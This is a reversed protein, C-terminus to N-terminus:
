NLGGNNSGNNHQHLKLTGDETRESELKYSDIDSEQLITEEVLNENISSIDIGHNSALDLNISDLDDNENTFTQNLINTLDNESINQNGDQNVDVHIMLNDINSLNNNDLNNDHNPQETNDQHINDVVNVEDEFPLDLSGNEVLEFPLDNVNNHSGNDLSPHDVNHNPATDNNVINEQNHSNSSDLNNDFGASYTNSGNSDGSNHNNNQHSNNNNNEVPISSDYSDGHKYGDSVSNGNEDHKINGGSKIDDLDANFIYMQNGDEDTIILYSGGTAYQKGDIMIYADKFHQVNYSSASGNLIIADDGKLTDVITNNKVESVILTDNDNTMSYQMVSSHSSNRSSVSDSDMAMQEQQYQDESISLTIKKSNKFIEFGQAIHTNGSGDSIRNGNLTVNNNLDITDQKGGGGSIEWGNTITTTNYSIQSTYNGLEYQNFGFTKVNSSTSSIDFGNTGTVSFSYTSAQTGKDSLDTLELTSHYGSAMTPANIGKSMSSTNTNLMNTLKVRFDYDLSFGTDFSFAPSNAGYTATISIDNTTRAAFQVSNGDIIAYDVHKTKFDSSFILSDINKFTYFEGKSIETVNIRKDTNAPLGSMDITFFNSIHLNGQSREIYNGNVILQVYSPTGANMINFTNDGGGGDVTIDEGNSSEYTVIDNGNGFYFKNVGAVTFNAANIQIHYPSTTTTLDLKVESVSDSVGDTGKLSLSGGNGLYIGNGNGSLYSLRANDLIIINVGTASANIRPFNTFQSHQDVGFNSNATQYVQIVDNTFYLNIGSADISLVDPNAAGSGGSDIDLGSIFSIFHITDAQNGLVLTKFSDLNISTTGGNLIFGNADINVDASSTSVDVSNIRASNGKISKITSTRYDAFSLNIDMDASFNLTDFGVMNVSLAYSNIISTLFVTSTTGSTINVNGVVNAGLSTGSTTFTNGTGTGMNISVGTYDRAMSALALTFTNNNANSGLINRFDKFTAKEGTALTAIDGNNNALDIAYSITSNIARLDLTDNSNFGAVGDVILGDKWSSKFVFTDDYESGKFEKFGGKITDVENNSKTVTANDGDIEVNIAGLMGGNTGEYSISAGSYQTNIQYSINANFTNVESMLYTTIKDSGAIGRFNVYNLGFNGTSDIASEAFVDVTIGSANAIKSLDLISVNASNGGDFTVGGTSGTPPLQEISLSSNTGGLIVLDMGTIKYNLAVGGNASTGSNSIILEGNTNYTFTTGSIKTDMNSFDVSDYGQGMNITIQNTSLSLSGTYVFDDDFDTLNFIEFNLIQDDANSVKKNVNMIVNGSLDEVISLTLGDTFTNTTYDATDDGGNGNIVTGYNEQFSIKDAQNTLSITNYNKVNIAGFNTMGSLDLNGQDDVSATIGIQVHALSLEDNSGGGMDIVVPTNPNTSYGQINDIEFIDDDDSLTIEEINYLVDTFQNTASRGKVEIIVNGSSDKTVGASLGSIANSYEISDIAQSGYGGRFIHSNSLGAANIHLEYNVNTTPSSGVESFNSVELFPNGGQTTSFSFGGIDTVGDIFFTTLGNSGPNGNGALLFSGSIGGTASVFRMTRNEYAANHYYTVDNKGQGLTIQQFGDYNVTTPSGLNGGSYEVVAQFNNNQGYTVKMNYTILSANLANDGGGVDISAAGAAGSIIKDAIIVTDDGAGTKVGEFNTFFDIFNSTGDFKQVTGNGSFDVTLSATSPLSSYDLIDVGAGGDLTLESDVSGHFIDNGKTLEFGKISSSDINYGSFGSGGGIVSINGSSDIEFETTGGSNAVNAFSVKDSGGGGRLTIDPLGATRNALVFVDNGRTGILETIYGNFYDTNNNQGKLVSMLGNSNATFDVRIASSPANASYDLISGGGANAADGMYTRNTTESGRFTATGTGTYAITEINSIFDILTGAGGSRDVTGRVADYIIDESGTYEIKDNGLDGNYRNGSALSSDVSIIDNNQTFKFSTFNVFNVNVTTTNSGNILDFSTQGPVFTVNIHTGSAADFDFNVSNTGGGGDITMQQTMAQMKNIVVTDAFQTGVITDINNFKDIFNVGKQIELDMLYISINSVAQSYNMTDNGSSNGTFIYNNRAQGYFMTETAAAVINFFNRFTMDINGSVSVGQAWVINAYPTNASQGKAVKQTNADFIVTQMASFDLTNKSASNGLYSAYAMPNSSGEFGTDFVITNDSNGFNVTDVGNIGQINLDNTGDSVVTTDINFSVGKAIDILVNDGQQGGLNINKSSFNVSLDTIWVTDAKNTGKITTFSDDFGDYIIDNNNKIVRGGDNTHVINGSSDKYDGIQIKVGFTTVQSYDLTNNTGTGTFNMSKGSSGQVLNGNNALVMTFGNNSFPTFFTIDVNMGGTIHDIGDKDQSLLIDVSSTLASLDLIAEANIGSSGTITVNGFSSGDKFTVTSKGSSLRINEFNLFSPLTGTTNIIQALFSGDTEFDVTIEDNIGTFSLTDSGAGADVELIGSREWGTNVGVVDDKSSLVLKQINTLTDEVRVANGTSDNYYRGVTAGTASLAVQLVNGQSNNPQINSLNTDNEYSVTNVGAGGDISWRTRAISAEYSSIIEVVDDADGLIFGEIHFLELNINGSSVPVTITVNGEATIQGTTNDYINYSGAASSDLILNLATLFSSLNVVDTDNSPNIMNGSGDGFVDNGYLRYVPLPNAINYDVLFVDNWTSGKVTEINILTDSQAASGSGKNVINKAVDFTISSTSNHYSAINSTGGGELTYSVSSDVYFYNNATGGKIYEVNLITDLNNSGKEVNGRTRQFLNFILDEDVLSYDATDVGADGDFYTNMGSIAHFIDDGATGYVGETNIFTSSGINAGSKDLFEVLMDAGNFSIDIHDVENTPLASFSVTDEGAGLDFTLGQISAVTTGLSFVVNDGFDSGFFTTFNSFYDTISSAARTVTTNGSSFVFTVGFGSGDGASDKLIGAYSLTNNGGRADLSFGSRNGQNNSDVYGADDMLFVDDGDTGIISYINIADQGTTTTIMMDFTDVGGGSKTIKGVGTNDFLVTIGNALDAYSLTDRGLGGNFGSYSGAEDTIIIIDNKSSLTLNGNIDFSGELEDKFANSTSLEAATFFSATKYILYDTSGDLVISVAASAKEYSMTDSASLGSYVYNNSFSGFFTDDGASAKIEEFNRIADSGIGGTSDNKNVVGTNADFIIFNGTGLNEYSLIDYGGMGDLTISTTTGSFGSIIGGYFTEDNVSGRVIEFGDFTVLTTNASNEITSTTGIRIVAGVFNEEIVVTDNDTRSSTLDGGHIKFNGLDTTESVILTDNYQSLYIDQFGKVIDIGQAKKILIDGDSIKSLNSFSSGAFDKLADTDFGYYVFIGSSAGNTNYYSDKFSLGTPDIGTNRNDYYLKNSDSGGNLIDDGQSGWVENNGSGADVIDNGGYTFIKDNGAGSNITNAGGGGVIIDDGSGTTVNVPNPVTSLVFGNNKDLHSDESVPYLSISTTSSALKFEGTSPDLYRISYTIDFNTIQTNTPFSLLFQMIGIPNINSIAYVTGENTSSINSFEMGAFESLKVFSEVAKPIIIEIYSPAIGKTYNMNFVYKMDDSSNNIFINQSAGGQNVTNAYVQSYKDDTYGFGNEFNYTMFDTGGVTTTGINSLQSGYLVKTELNPQSKETTDGPMYNTKDLTYPSDTTWITAVFSGRGTSTGQTEVTGITDIADAPVGKTLVDSTGQGTIPTGAANDAEQDSAVQILKPESSSYEVQNENALILLAENYNLVAAASLFEELTLTRGDLTIIKPGSDSFGLSAMSVLTLTSGNAFVLHVDGKIIEVKLTAADNIDFNLNIEDGPRVYAIDRKGGVEPAYLSIKSGEYEVVNEGAM